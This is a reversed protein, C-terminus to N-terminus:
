DGCYPLADGAALDLFVLSVETIFWCPLTNQLVKWTPMLIGDVVKLM